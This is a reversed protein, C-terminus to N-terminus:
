EVDDLADKYRMRKRRNAGNTIENLFVQALSQELTADRTEDIADVVALKAAELDREADAIDEPTAARNREDDLQKTAQQQGITAEIVRLKAEELGIERKRLEIPNADSRHVCRPL